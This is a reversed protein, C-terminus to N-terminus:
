LLLGVAVEQTEPELQGLFELTAQLQELLM